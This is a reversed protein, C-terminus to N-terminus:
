FAGNSTAVTNLVVDVRVTDTPFRLPMTVGDLSNSGHQPGKAAYVILCRPGVTPSSSPLQVYDGAANATANASGDEIGGACGGRFLLIAVDAGPVPFGAADRITGRVGIVHMNLSPLAAVTECGALVFGTLCIMWVQRM